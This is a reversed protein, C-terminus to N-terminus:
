CWYKWLILKVLLSVLSKFQTVLLHGDTSDCYVRKAAVLGEKIHSAIHRYYKLDAL